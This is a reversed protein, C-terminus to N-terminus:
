SCLLVAQRTGWLAKYVTIAISNHKNVVLNRPHGPLFAANLLKLPVQGGRVSPPKVATLCVIYMIFPSVLVSFCYVDM